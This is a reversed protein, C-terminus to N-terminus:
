KVIIGKQAIIMLGNGEHNNMKIDAWMLLLVLPHVLVFYFPFIYKFVPSYQISTVIDYSLRGFPGYTITKEIVNFGTEELKKHLEDETYYRVHEHPYKAQKERTMKQIKRKLFPFVRREATPVYIILYGKHNIAQYITRLAEVDNEIHELLSACLITDFKEDKEIELLSNCKFILNNIRTKVAFYLNDEAQKEDVDIGLVDAHPFNRAVFVAHQGLGSGADLFTFIKKGKLVFHLAKRLYWERLTTLFIVFYLLRRLFIKKGIFDAIEKSTM